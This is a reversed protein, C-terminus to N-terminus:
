LERPGKDEYESTRYTSIRLDDPWAGPQLGAKHLLAEVFEDRDPVKAWVSPLFTGRHRGADVVVGDIGPHLAAVLEERTSVRLPEPRTLLSVKVSMVRFDDATVAPVRPDEFAAALAHRATDIGVPEDAVLTGVCGLLQDGRELTVFTAGRERLVPDTVVPLIRRGTRLAEGIATGAIRPLAVALDIM